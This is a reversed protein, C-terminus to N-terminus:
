EREKLVDCSVCFRVLKKGDKVVQQASDARARTFYKRKSLRVVFEGVDTQRLATGSAQLQFRARRKRDVVKVFSAKTLWLKSPEVAHSLERLVNFWFLQNRKLEKTADIEVRMRLTEAKEQKVQAFVPEFKKVRDRIAIIDREYRVQAAHMVLFLAALAVALAAAIQGPSLRGSAQASRRAAARKIRGPLLNVQTIASKQALGAAATLRPAIARLDEESVLPTGLRVSAVPDAFAVELQMRSNVLQHLDRLEAGKGSLILMHIKDQPAQQGYFGLSRELEGLLKELVRRIATGVKRAEEASEPTSEDRVEIKGGAQDRIDEWFLIGDKMHDLEKRVAIALLRASEERLACGHRRKLIEADTEDVGLEESIARTLDSDGIRIERVFSIYGEKLVVLTTTTSGIDAIAVCEDGAHPVSRRLGSVVAFPKVSVIIPNLGATSLMKVHEQVKQRPAAAVLVDVKKTGDEFTVEKLVHYDFLAGQLSFPASREAEWWISRALDERPMQPLSIFKVFVNNGGIFSVTDRSTINKERALRTLLRAMSDPDSKEQPSIRSTAYNFLVPGTSTEKMEVMTVYDGEIDLGIVAM